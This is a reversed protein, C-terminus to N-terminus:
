QDFWFTDPRYMGFYSGPEWNYFGKEPINQLATNVVVIQPVASVLGITFQEDAHIDLIEQWIARRKEKDPERYWDEYLEVM